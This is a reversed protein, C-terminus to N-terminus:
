SDLMSCLIENRDCVHVNPLNVNSAETSALRLSTLSPACVQMTVRFTPAGLSPEQLRARKIQPAEDEQCDAANRASLCVAQQVQSTDCVYANDERFEKLMRAMDVNTYPSM